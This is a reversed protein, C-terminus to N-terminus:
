EYGMRKLLKAAALAGVARAAKLELEEVDLPKATEPHASGPLASVKPQAGAKIGHAKAAGAITRWVEARQEDPIKTAAFREFANKIHNRTKGSDGPFYIPLKWTEPKDPNGVFAFSSMQLDVGAVKRTKMTEKGVFAATVALPLWRSWRVEPATRPDFKHPLVM